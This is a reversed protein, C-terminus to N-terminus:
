KFDEMKGPYFDPTVELVHSIKGLELEPDDSTRSYITDPSEISTIFIYKAVIQYYFGRTIVPQLYDGILRNIFKHDGDFNEVLVATHRSYGGWVNSKNDVRYLDLGYEECQEHVWRTKDMCTEGWLWLVKPFSDKLEM